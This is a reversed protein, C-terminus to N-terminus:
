DGGNKPTKKPKSNGQILRAIDLGDLLLDTSIASLLLARAYYTMSTTSASTENSSSLSTPICLSILLVCAPIAM